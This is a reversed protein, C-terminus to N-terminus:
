ENQKNKRILVGNYNSNKTLNDVAWLPQLNTYHFCQKQQEELTLDFAACPKIHDVHWKGHNIWAMGEVFQSELYSRLEQISCGLLEITKVQKHTNQRRLAEWLRGRLYRMLKFELDRSEREIRYENHYHPNNSNFKRNAERKIEPNLSHRNKHFLKVKDINNQYYIHANLRYLELNEERDKIYSLKHCDKCWHRKGDKSSKLNHFDTFSKSIKCRCCIKM